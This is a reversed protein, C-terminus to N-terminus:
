KIPCVNWHVRHYRPWTKNRTNGVRLNVLILFFFCIIELGWFQMEFIQLGWSLLDKCMIHCIMEDGIVTVSLLLCLPMTQKYFLWKIVFTASHKEVGVACRLAYVCMTGTRSQTNQGSCNENSLQCMKCVFDVRRRDISKPREDSVGNTRARAECTGDGTLQLHRSMHAKCHCLAHARISTHPLTMGILCELKSFQLQIDHRVCFEFLYWIIREASISIATATAVFYRRYRIELTQIRPLKINPM